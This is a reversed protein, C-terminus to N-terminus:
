SRTMARRGGANPVPSGAAPLPASRERLYTQEAAARDPAAYTRIVTGSSSM